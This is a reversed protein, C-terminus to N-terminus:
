DELQEYAASNNETEVVRVRVLRAREAIPGALQEFFCKALNETTPIVGALFPVETNLNRHDVLDVVRDAMVQKVWGLDAVFGTEPDIEGAVTVELTYNHGHWAPNSCKGFVAYNRADDWDPRFLRHAAAFTARRTVSARYTM